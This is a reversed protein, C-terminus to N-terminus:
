APPGRLFPQHFPFGSLNQQNYAEISEVFCAQEETKPVSPPIFDNNKATQCQLECETEANHDIVVDHAIVTTQGVIWVTLLLVARMHLIYSKNTM